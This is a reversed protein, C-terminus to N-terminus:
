FPYHEKPKGVLWVLIGELLTEVIERAPVELLPVQCSKVTWPSGGCLSGGQDVYKRLESGESSTCSRCNTDRRGRNNVEASRSKKKKIDFNCICRRDCPTSREGVISTTQLPKGLHFADELVKTDAETIRSRLLEPTPTRFPEPTATPPPQAQENKNQITRQYHGSTKLSTHDAGCSMLARKEDAFISATFSFSLDSAQCGGWM